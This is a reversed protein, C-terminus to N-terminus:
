SKWLNKEKIMEAVSVPLSNQWGDSRTQILEFIDRSFLRMNSRECNEITELFGNERIYKYLNRLNQAVMLNEITVLGNKDVKAEVNDGRGVQKRYREFNEHEIPYVYIKVNDKFLIGFAELIGGELQEYYNEKFIDALNNLGMVMGIPKRIYRRLFSSLKFYEFYNSVLVGYGCANIVEIRALFDDHDIDGEHLLNGLTLEMFVEVNDEEVDERKCFQIKAKELMDLNVQTVPRFSGREILCAKKYLNEAAQVVHGDQDFMIAQTLGKETLKLCLIRNDFKKFEPGNFEIMDVEIRHEGIGDILSAIFLDPETNLHFAGYVLNVGLMGVAEQQLRNERDLMRVHLIVDHFSGMPELQFRIGMWGHCENTKHYNLASVTNAFAFFNSDKGRLGSLREELLSYEHGMMQVLRKRSVYRGAEGYIADSFKMDYASMTKAVTGAAGGAQFFNRAVEQGAGIEAFTGYKSSDLNIRLAKREVTLQEDSM